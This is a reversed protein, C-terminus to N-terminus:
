KDRWRGLTMEWARDTQELLSDLAGDNRIVVDALAIKEEASTQGRVRFWADRESLGRQAVLRSVQHQPSSLVLWLSDVLSATGAEVIAVAEIVLVESLPVTQIRQVLLEHVFPHVAADLRKLQDTDAFVLSRLVSRNISEDNQLIDRGFAAVVAKWAPQHPRMLDGAVVDADIITAGKEALRRSVTSKGCAINGTIAIVLGHTSKGM